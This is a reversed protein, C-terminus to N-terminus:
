GTHQGPWLRGQHDHAETSAVYGDIILKRDDESPVTVVTSSAVGRTYPDRLEVILVRKQLYWLFQLDAQAFYPRESDAM